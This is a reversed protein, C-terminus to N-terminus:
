SRAGGLAFPVSPRAPGCGEGRAGGHHGAAKAHKRRRRQARGGGRGGRAPRGEVAKSAAPAGHGALVRDILEEVSDCFANKSGVLDAPLGAGLLEEVEPGGDKLEMVSAGNLACSVDISTFLGNRVCRNVAYLFPGTAIGCRVCLDLARQCARVSSLRQDVLFLTATSAELLQAHYEAWSAGTNVVLLDFLLAAEEILGPLQAGLVEAQELRPPAAVLTPAGDEPELKELLSPDVLAQDIGLPRQAGTLLACDGFQLDCDVLLVRLGRAAALYATAVSVASKGAGGSGSVVSLVVATRGHAARKAPRPPAPRTAASVVPAVPATAATPAGLTALTGTGRSGQSRECGEGADWRGDRPPQSSARAGKGDGSAAEALSAWDAETVMAQRLPREAGAAAEPGAGAAGPAEASADAGRPGEAGMRAGDRGAADAAERRRQKETAYRQAFGERSLTASLEAAQARSLISGSVEQGALVVTHDSRDRRLAAAVNIADMDDASNVWVERPGPAERLYARVDDAKAFPRLWAVAEVSEGELGMLEPYRLTLSDACLVIEEM